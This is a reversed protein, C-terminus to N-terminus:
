SLNSEYKPKGYRKATKAAACLAFSMCIGIGLMATGLAFLGEMTTGCIAPIFLDLSRKTSKCDLNSGLEMLLSKCGQLHTDAM